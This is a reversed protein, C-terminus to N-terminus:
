LVKKVKCCFPCWASNIASIKQYTRGQTSPEKELPQCHVYCGLKGRCQVIDLSLDHSSGCLHTTQLRSVEELGSSCISSAFFKIASSSGKSLFNQRKAHALTVTGCYSLYLHVAPLSSIRDINCRLLCLFKVSNALCFYTITLLWEFWNQIAACYRLTSLFTHWAGYHLGHCVDLAHVECPNM